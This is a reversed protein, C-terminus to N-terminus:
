PAWYPPATVAIRSPMGPSAEAVMVTMSPWLSARFPLAPAASPNLIAAEKMPPSIPRMRSVAKAVVMAWAAIAKPGISIVASIIKESDSTLTSPPRSRLLAIIDSNAPRKMPVIPSSGITPRGRKSKPSTRSNSPMSNEM